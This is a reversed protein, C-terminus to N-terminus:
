ADKMKHSEYVQGQSNAVILYNDDYFLSTINGVKQENFISFKTDEDNTASVCGDKSNFYFHKGDTVIANVVWPITLKVEWKKNPTYEYLTSVNKDGSGNTLVYIDNEITMINIIRGALGEIKEFKESSRQSEDQKFVNGNISGIVLENNKTVSLASIQSNVDGLKVAEYEKSNKLNVKQIVSEIGSKFVVYLDNNKKDIFLLLVEEEFEDKEFSEFNQTLKNYKYVTGHDESLNSCGVFVEGNNDVVLSNIKNTINSTNLKVFPKNSDSEFINNADDLVFITNQYEATTIIKNTNTGAILNFFDGNPVVHNKDHDCAIIYASSQFISVVAVLMKLVKKM